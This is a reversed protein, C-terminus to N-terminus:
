NIIDSVEPRHSVRYIVGAKDDSIYITGGPQVLIDVPRGLAGEKTLWGTIFDEPEGLVKGNADLKIRVIKYGTPESRNWSGHYTVLLNNWMSEPWGEEPIFALGLPASHAQLDIHSPEMGRCSIQNSSISIDVTNKGYCIPWGYNKGEEIINVEDPPTDDGLLDRGMDTGWIKGTVPHIVMFVTNRLGKAFETVNGTKIDYKLIKARRSDKETCINCSSGVSILLNNENPYPMFLLTRTSHGGDNPLDVIKKPNIAKMNVGDYDYEVVRHTEAIYIKCRPPNVPEHSCNFAIGHPNNLGSIVPSTRDIKGDSDNDILASVRGASMESVLIHGVPDYALVRPGELDKAFISISFGQPLKLPLGTTNETKSIDIPPNKIVPGIGRLNQYYFIGVGIATTALITILVTKILKKM